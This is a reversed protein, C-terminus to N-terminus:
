VNPTWMNMDTPWGTQRCWLEQHLIQYRGFKTCRLIEILSIDFKAITLMPGNRSISEGFFINEFYKLSQVDWYVTINKSSDSNKKKLFIYMWNMFICPIKMQIPRISRNMYNLTFFNNWTFTTWNEDPIERFFAEINDKSAEILAPEDYPSLM